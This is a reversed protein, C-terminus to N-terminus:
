CTSHFLGGVRQGQKNLANFLEVAKKTREIHYEIGKERLLAETEPCVGLRGIVGRSLVVVDPNHTLIEEIDAPQIGPSHQTGTERWNWARGGGPWLKCDKFQRIEEGIKLEM